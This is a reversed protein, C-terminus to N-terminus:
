GHTGCVVSWQPIIENFLYKYVNYNLEIVYNSLLYNLLHEQCYGSLELQKSALWCDIDTHLSKRSKCDHRYQVMLKLHNYPQQTLGGEGGGRQGMMPPPHSPSKQQNWWWLEYWLGDEYATLTKHPTSLCMTALKKFLCWVKAVGMFRSWAWLLNVEGM